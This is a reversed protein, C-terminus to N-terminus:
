ILHNRFGDTSIWSDNGLCFTGNKALAYQTMEARKVLLSSWDQM